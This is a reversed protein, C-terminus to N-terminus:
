RWIHKHIKKSLDKCGAGKLSNLRIDACMSDKERIQLQVEHQAVLVDWGARTGGIYVYEEDGEHSLVPFDKKLITPPPITVPAALENQPPQHEEPLPQMPCPLSSAVALGGTALNTGMAGEQNKVLPTPMVSPVNGCSFLRLLLKDIGEQEIGVFLAAETVARASLDSNSTRDKLAVQRKKEVLNKVPISLVSSADRKKSQAQQKHQRPSLQFGVVFCERVYIEMAVGKDHNDSSDRKKITALANAVCNKALSLGVELGFCDKFQATVHEM